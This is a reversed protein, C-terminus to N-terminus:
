RGGRMYHREPRYTSAAVWGRLLALIRQVPRSARNPPLPHLTM